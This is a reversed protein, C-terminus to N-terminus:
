NNYTWRAVESYAFHFSGDPKLFIRESAIYEGIFWTNPQEVLEFKLPKGEQPLSQMNLTIETM